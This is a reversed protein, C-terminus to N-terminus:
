QSRGESEPQSKQNGESKSEPATAPQDAGVQEGKPKAGPYKKHFRDLESQPIPILKTFIKKLEANTDLWGAGQPYSFVFNGCVWCFTGEHLLDEGAYIRIGHIPFHCFAGGTHKPEAIKKSLTELLRKRDGPGIEKTSLIKTRKGYPAISITESGDGGGFVDDDSIGDFDVLYVVVRDAKKILAAKGVRYKAEAKEIAKYFESDLDKQAICPLCMYLTILLLPILKM